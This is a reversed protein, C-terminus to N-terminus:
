STASKLAASRALFNPDRKGAEAQNLFSEGARPSWRYLGFRSSGDAATFRFAHVGHYTAQAYSAPVPKQMVRSVFAM